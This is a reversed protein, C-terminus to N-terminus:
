RRLSEDIMRKHESTIVIKRVERLVDRLRKNDALALELAKQLKQADPVDSSQQQGM